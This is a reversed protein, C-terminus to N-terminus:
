WQSGHDWAIAKHYRPDVGLGREFEDFGHQLRDSHEGIAM